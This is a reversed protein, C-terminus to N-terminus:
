IVIWNAGDSEFELSIYQQVIGFSAQGDITQGGTTAITVQNGSSDFKKINVRRGAGLTADYLTRTIAGGAANVKETIDPWASSVTGSSSVTVVAPPAAIGAVVMPTLAIANLSEIVFFAQISVSNAVSSLVGGNLVNSPWVFTRGGTGDQVLVFILLQGAYVNTLTSASVNGTLTLEWGSALAANFVMSSSFSPAILPPIQDATTVINALVATLTALNADSIVFGKNAFSDCLATLVTSLQYWLKNATPSPLIADTSAGGSRLTDALYQADNEQNASAPNWQM